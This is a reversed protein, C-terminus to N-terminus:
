KRNVKLVLCFYLVVCRFRFKEEHGFSAFHKYFTAKRQSTKIKERLCWAAEVFFIVKINNNERSIIRELISEQDIAIYIISKTQKSKKRKKEIWVDRIM